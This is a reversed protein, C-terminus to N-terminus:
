ADTAWLRGPTITSSRTATAPPVSGAVVMMFTVVYLQLYDRGSRRNFLKNVLLFLLFNDESLYLYLLVLSYIALFITSKPWHDVLWPFLGIQGKQETM